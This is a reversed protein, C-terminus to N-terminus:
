RTSSFFRTLGIVFTHGLKIHLVNLFSVDLSAAYKCQLLRRLELDAQPAYAYGLLTIKRIAPLVGCM